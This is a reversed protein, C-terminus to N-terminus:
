ILRQDESLNFQLDVVPPSVQVLEKLNQRLALPASMMLSLSTYGFYGELLQGQVPDTSEVDLIPVTRYNKVLSEGLRTGGVSVAQGRLILKYVADRKLEQAPRFTLM